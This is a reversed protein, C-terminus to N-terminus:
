LIILNFIYFARLKKHKILIECRIIFNDLYPQRRYYVICLVVIM